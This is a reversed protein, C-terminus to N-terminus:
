VIFRKVKRASKNLYNLFTVVVGEIV